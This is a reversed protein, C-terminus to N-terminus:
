IGYKYTGFLGIIQEDDAIVEEDEMPMGDQSQIRGVLQGDARMLNLERLWDGIKTGQIRRISPADSLNVTQTASDPEDYGKFLPSSVGNSLHVQISNILYYGGYESLTGYDISSVSSPKDLPWSLVDEKTPWEFSRANTLNQPIINTLKIDCRGM